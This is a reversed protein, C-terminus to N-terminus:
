RALHARERAPGATSPLRYSPALSPTSPLTRVHCTHLHLESVFLEPREM